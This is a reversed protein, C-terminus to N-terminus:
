VVDNRGTSVGWANPLDILRQGWLYGNVYGPDNPHVNPIATTQRPYMLYNFGVREVSAESQLARLVTETNAKGEERSLTADGFVNTRLQFPGEPYLRGVKVLGFSAYKTLLHGLTADDNASPKLQVLIEGPVFDRQSASDKDSTNVTALAATSTANVGPIRLTGSIVGTGPSPSPTGEGAGGGGGGCGPLGTWMLIVVLISALRQMRFGM